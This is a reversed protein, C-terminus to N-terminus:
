RKEFEFFDDYGDKLKALDLDYNCLLEEYGAQILEITKLKVFHFDNEQNNM